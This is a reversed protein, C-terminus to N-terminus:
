AVVGSENFLWDASEVLKLKKAEKATFWGGEIIKEEFVPKGADVKAEYFLIVTHYGVEPFVAEHHGLNKVRGAKLKTEEKLERRVADEIREGWEIGGGPVIWWEGGGELKEKVLLYKNRRKALVGVVIRPRKESM